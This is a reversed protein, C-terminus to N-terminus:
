VPGLVQDPTEFHVPLTRADDESKAPAAPAEEKVAAQFAAFKSQPRKEIAPVPSAQAGFMEGRPTGNKMLYDSAVVYKRLQKVAAEDGKKMRMALLPIGEENDILAYDGSVKAHADMFVIEGAELGATAFCARWTGTPIGDLPCELPLPEPRDVAVSAVAVSAVVEPKKRDQVAGLADRYAKRIIDAEAEGRVLADAKEDVDLQGFNYVLNRPVGEPIGGRIGCIRSDTILDNGISTLDESYLDGGPTMIMWESGRVKACLLRMHWLEPNDPYLVLVQRGPELRSLTAVTAAM